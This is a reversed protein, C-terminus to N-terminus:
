TSVIAGKVPFFSVIVIKQHLNLPIVPTGEATLEKCTNISHSSGGKRPCTTCGTLPLVEKRM